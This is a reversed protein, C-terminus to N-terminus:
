LEKIREGQLGKIQGTFKYELPILFGWMVGQGCGLRDQTAAPAYRLSCVIGSTSQRGNKPSSNVFGGGFGWGQCPRHPWARTDANERRKQGKVSRRLCSIYISLTLWGFDKLGILRGGGPLITTYIQGVERM